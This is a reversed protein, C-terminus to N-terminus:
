QKKQVMKLELFEIEHPQTNESIWSVIEYFTKKDWNTVKWESDRTKPVNRVFTCKANGDKFFFIEVCICPKKLSSVEGISLFPYISRAM